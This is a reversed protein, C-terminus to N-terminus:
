RFLQRAKSHVNEADTASGRGSRYERLRREAEDAWLEDLEEAKLDELSTLLQQALSAREAPSLRLAAHLIDTPNTM